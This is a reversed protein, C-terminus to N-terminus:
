KCLEADIYEKNVMEGSLEDVEYVFSKHNNELSIIINEDQHELENTYAYYVFSSYPYIKVRGNPFSIKVFSYLM